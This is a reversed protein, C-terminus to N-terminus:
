KRRKKFGKGTKTDYYIASVEGLILIKKDNKSMNEVKLVEGEAVLVNETLELVIYSEDFSLISIVGEIELKKREILKLSHTVNSKLDQMDGGIFFRISLDIRKM